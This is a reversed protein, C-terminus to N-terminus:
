SVNIGDVLGGNANGTARIAVRPGSTVQITTVQDSTRSWDGPNFKGYLGVGNPIIVSEAYTGAAVLVRKKTGSAAAATLGRGITLFPAAKTGDNADNGTKAVFFAQAENTLAFEAAAPLALAALVSAVAISVALRRPMAPELLSARM